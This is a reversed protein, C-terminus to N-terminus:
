EKFIGLAQVQTRAEDPSIKGAKLDARIQNAQAIAQSQGTDAGGGAGADPPTNLMQDQIAKQKALLEQQQKAQAQRQKYVDPTFTPYLPQGTTKNIEGSAIAAAYGPTPVPGKDSKQLIDTPSVLDPKAREEPTTAYRLSGDDNKMYGFGAPVNAPLGYKEQEQEITKAQQGLVGTQSKRRNFLQPPTIWQGPNDPDQIKNGRGAGGAGRWDILSQNLREREAQEQQDQVLEALGKKGAFAALGATGMGKLGGAEPLGMLGAQELAANAARRDAEEKISQALTKQFNQTQELKNAAIANALSAVASGEGQFHPWAFQNLNGEPNATVFPM